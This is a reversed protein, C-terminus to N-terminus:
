GARSFKLLKILDSVIGKPPADAGYSMMLNGIPDIIFIRGPTTTASIGNIEFQAVFKDMVPKDATAVFMGPYKEIIARTDTMGSKDTVIFLRQIRQMEKGQSWRIQRMLYIKEQCISDCSSDGIYVLTWKHQINQLSFPRAQADVFGELVLPRAPTILEGANTTREPKLGDVSYFLIALVVPLSFVAVLLILTQRGRNKQKNQEM